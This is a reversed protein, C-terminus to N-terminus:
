HIANSYSGKGFYLHNPLLACSMLLLGREALQRRWVKMSAHSLPFSGDGDFVGCFQQLTESQQWADILDDEKLGLMDQLYLMGLILRLPTNPTEAFEACFSEELLPWNIRLGISQIQTDRLTKSKACVSQTLTKM